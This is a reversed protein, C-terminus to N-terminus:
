STGTGGSQSRGAQASELGSLIKALQSHAAAQMGGADGMKANVDTDTALSIGSLGSIRVGSGKAGVSVIPLQSTISQPQNHSSVAHSTAAALLAAHSIDDGAVTTPQKYAATMLLSPNLTVGGSAVAPTLGLAQALPPTIPPQTPPGVPQRQSPAAAAAAAVAAIPNQLNALNQPNQPNGQQQMLTQLVHMITQDSAGHQQLENVIAAFEKTSPSSLPTNGPQTNGTNIASTSTTAVAPTLGRVGAGGVGTGLTDPTYVAPVLGGLPGSSVRNPASDTSPGEPAILGGLTGPNAQLLQQLLAQRTAAQSVESQSQSQTQSQRLQAALDTVAQAQAAAEKVAAPNEQNLAQLVLNMSAPDPNRAMLAQLFSFIEQSSSAAPPNSTPPTELNQTLKSPTLPPATCVAKPRSHQVFNPTSPRKQGSLAAAAAAAPATAALNGLSAAVSVATSTNITAAGGTSPTAAPAGGTGTLSNPPNCSSTAPPADALDPLGARKKAATSTVSSVARAAAGQM